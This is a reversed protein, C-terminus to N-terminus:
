ASKKRVQEVIWSSHDAAAAGAAEVMGLAVDGGLIEVSEAEMAAAIMAAVLVVRGALGWGFGSHFSVSCPHISPRKRGVVYTFYMIGTRLSFSEFRSM